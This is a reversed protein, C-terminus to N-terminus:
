LETRGGCAGPGERDLRRPLARNRRERLSLQPAHLRLPAVRGAARRVPRSARRRELGGARRLLWEGCSAPPRALGPPFTRPRRQPLPPGPPPRRGERVRQRRERRLSRCAWGWQRRLVGRRRGRESQRGSVLGAAERRVHRRAATDLAAG